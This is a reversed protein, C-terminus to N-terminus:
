YYGIAQLVGNGALSGNQIKLKLVSIPPTWTQGAGITVPSGFTEGDASTQIQLSYGTVIFDVAGVTQNFSYEVWANTGTENIVDTLSFGGTTSAVKLRGDDTAQLQVLGKSGKAWLTSWVRRIINSIGLRQLVPPDASVGERFSLDM